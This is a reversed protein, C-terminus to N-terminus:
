LNDRVANENSGIKSTYTVVYPYRLGERISFEIKENPLEWIYSVTGIKKLANDVKPQGYKQSFGKIVAEPDADISFLNVIHLKDGLFLYCAIFNMSGVSWRSAYKVDYVSGPNTSNNVPCNNGSALKVPSAKRLQAATMGWKTFQWDAKAPFATLLVFGASLVGFIRNFYSM